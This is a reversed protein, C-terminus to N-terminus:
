RERQQSYHNKFEDEIALVAKEYPKLANELSPLIHGELEKLSKKHDIMGVLSQLKNKLGDLRAIEEVFIQYDIGEVENEAFIRKIDDYTEMEELPLGESADEICRLSSRISRWIEHPKISIEGFYETHKASELNEYGLSPDENWSFIGYQIGQERYGKIDEFLTELNADLAEIINDPYKDGFTKVLPSDNSFEWDVDFSSSLQPYDQEVANISSEVTYEQKEGNYKIKLYSDNEFHKVMSRFLVDEKNRYELYDKETIPETMYIRSLTKLERKLGYWILDENTKINTM